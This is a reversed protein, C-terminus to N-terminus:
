DFELLDGYNTALVPSYTDLQYTQELILNIPAKSDLTWAFLHSAEHAMVNRLSYQYSFTQGAIAHTENTAMGPNDRLVTTQVVM